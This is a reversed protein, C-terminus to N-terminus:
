VRSLKHAKVMEAFSEIHPRLQRTRSDRPDYVDGELVMFPIGLERQVIDKIMYSDSVMPRCSYHVMWFAGDLNYRRCAEVAIRSRVPFSNFLTSQTLVAGLRHNPDEIGSVDPSFRGDPEYLQVEEIPVAIGMGELMLVITPDVYSQVYGHLVRPAGKPVIGKGSDVREELERCLINVGEAAVEAGHRSLPLGNLARIVHVFASSIPPPDSNVVMDVVQRMPRSFERALKRAQSLLDDTIKVGATEGVREATRGITGALFEIHRQVRGSEEWDKDQGRLFFHVPVGFFEEFSADAKPNEDCILGVSVQLAARPILDLAYLGLRSQILSCHGAGAELYLGEAAEMIPDLKDFMTGLTMVFLLDPFSVHVDKGGLMAATLIDACASPPSSYIWKGGEDRALVLDVLERVYVGLIRRVGRLDTDFFSTIREEGRAVDEASLGLRAFAREVRPLQEEIEEPEYGCLELFHVIM